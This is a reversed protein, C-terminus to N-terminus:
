ARPWASSTSDFNRTGHAARVTACIHAVGAQRIFSPFDMDFCIAGAIRGNPTQVTPLRYDHVPIISSAAEGGPVPNQKAYDFLTDGRPDLFLFRNEAKIETSHRPAVGMGIGLYIRAM